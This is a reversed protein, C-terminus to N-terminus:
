EDIGESQLLTTISGRITARRTSDHINIMDQVVECMCDDDGFVSMPTSIILPSGTTVLVLHGVSDTTMTYVQATGDDTEITIKM